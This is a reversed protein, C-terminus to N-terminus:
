VKMGFDCAILDKQLWQGRIAHNASQLSRAQSCFYSPPKWSDQAGLKSGLVNSDTDQPRGLISLGM